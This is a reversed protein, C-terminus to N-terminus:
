RRRRRLRTAFLIAIGMSLPLNLDSSAGSQSTMCACGTDGVDVFGGYSVVRGGTWDLVGYVAYTGTEFEDTIWVFSDVTLADLGAAIPTGDEGTDDTDAYLSVVGEAGGPLVAEWKIKYSGDTTADNVGDPEIITLSAEGVRGEVTVSGPAYAYDTAGRPDSVKAFVRWTGSAVGLTDWTTSQGIGGPLGREILVGEFGTGDKDYFLSVELPDGDADTADWTVTVLTSTVSGSPERVVITPADNPGDVPFPNGGDEEIVGGDVDLFVASGPTGPIGVGLSDTILSDPGAHNTWSSALAGPFFPSVRVMTAKPQTATGNRGAYWPGGPNATDCDTPEDVRCVRLIEGANSLGSSFALTIAQPSVLETAQARREVVLVQGKPIRVPPLSHTTAGEVIFFASLDVIEDPGPNYLEIWEDDASSVSGMWAVESIIPLPQDPLPGADVVGGDPPPPPPEEEVVVGPSGNIAAGASDTVTSPDGDHNKWSSAYSGDLDLRRRTMTRKPANNSGAFWAGGAPNAVDCEVLEPGRCLRLLEGTNSLGGSFAVLVADPAGLSTATANRELVLV